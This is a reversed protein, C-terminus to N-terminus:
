GDSMEGQKYLWCVFQMRYDDAMRQRMEANEYLYTRLDILQASEEWTFGSTMLTNLQLHEETTSITPLRETLPQVRQENHEPQNM